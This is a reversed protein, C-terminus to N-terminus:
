PLARADATAVPGVTSPNGSPLESAIEDKGTGANGSIATDSPHLISPGAARAHRPAPKAGSLGVSLGAPKSPMFAYGHRTIALKMLPASVGKSPLVKVLPASVGNCISNNEGTGSGSSRGASAGSSSASPTASSGTAYILAKGAAVQWHGQAALKANSAPRQPLAAKGLGKVSLYGGGPVGIHVGAAGGEGTNAQLAWMGPHLSPPPLAGAMADAAISAPM